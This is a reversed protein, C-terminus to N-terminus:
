NAQFWDYRYDLFRRYEHNFPAIDLNFAKILYEQSKPFNDHNLYYAALNYYYHAALGVDPFKETQVIEDLNRISPLNDPLTALKAEAVSPYAKYAYGNSLSFMKSDNNEQTLAFNAYLPRDEVKELLNIMERRREEFTLEYYAPPLILDFDKYFFKQDSVVTVDPRLNEVMKFYILSFIETDGQISADYAFYYISDPELSELLNKTYDYGFWFDSMDNKEYNIALFSLPLSLLILSFFIQVSKFVLVSYQRFFKVLFRQLYTIIMVLWITLILFSPLYYVRYIYDVGLAWGFRRLYIIGLSNLLFIAITLIALSRNKKWLYVVGGFALILAPLFFQQYLVLLFSIVVGTKSYKNAFPAFDNYSVRSIHAWVDPWSGIPGWNFLPQQFARLPIYLYVTLGLIFLLFMKLILKWQWIIRKDVLLIYLAYAPALLVSMTHNTLSLGYLFSFWLLYKAKRKESWHFLILILLAVFFANLTYVEAFVSQSWFISSFALMLSFSFAIVKSKALKYLILYLLTITLAGFVASMLNVRWAITGLPIFTFLKGLIVYLPFGSPHPIGLTYAATILEGSDEMAITPALTFLYVTMVLVFVLSALLFNSKKLLLSLM